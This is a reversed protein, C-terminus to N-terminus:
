PLYNKQWALWILFGALGGGLHALASVRGDMFLQEYLIFLQFGGYVLLYITVPFGKSLFQRAWILMAARAVFGFPLWIVRAQPYRCVYFVLVGFVGGSAGILGTGSVAGHLLGGLMASIMFLGFLRRRGFCCEINRGFLILFYLNGVMHLWSGHVFPHGLLGSWWQVGSTEPRYVLWAVLQSSDPLYWVLCSIVAILSALSWTLWPTTHIVSQRAKVPMGVLFLLFQPFNLREQPQYEIPEHKGPKRSM